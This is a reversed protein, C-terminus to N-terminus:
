GAYQQPQNRATFQDLYKSCQSWVEKCFIDNQHRSNKIFESAYLELQQGLKEFHTKFVDKPEHESCETFFAASHQDVLRKAIVTFRDIRNQYLKMRPYM